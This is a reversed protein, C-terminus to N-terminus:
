KKENRIINQNNLNDFNILSEKINIKYRLTKKEKGEKTGDGNVIELLKGGNATIIQISSKNTDYCSIIAEEYGMENMKELLLHCLLTGYGKGRKSPVIQYFVHGSYIRCYEDIEPNLRISGSGIIKDDEIFWYFIEKVKDEAEGSRAKKMESLYESFNEKTVFPKWSDPYANLFEQNYENIKDIDFMDLVDTIYFNEMM